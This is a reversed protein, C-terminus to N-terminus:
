SKVQAKGRQVWYTQALVVAVFGIAKQMIHGIADDGYNQLDDISQSRFTPEHLIGLSSQELCTNNRVAKKLNVDAVALVRISRPMGVPLRRPHPAM